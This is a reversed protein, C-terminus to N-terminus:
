PYLTALAYPMANGKNLYEQYTFSFICISLRSERLKVCKTLIVLLADTTLITINTTLM